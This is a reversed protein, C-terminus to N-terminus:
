DEHFGIEPKMATKLFITYNISGVSGALAEERRVVLYSTMETIVSGTKPISEFDVDRITGDPYHVSCRQSAM